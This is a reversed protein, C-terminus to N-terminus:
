EIFEDGDGTELRYGVKGRLIEELAVMTPKKSRIPVLPRAEPKSIQAARRSGVIVLRYLSDIKGEFDEPSFTAM